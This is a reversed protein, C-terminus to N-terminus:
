TLKSFAMQQALNLPTVSCPCAAQQLPAWVGEEQRNRETEMNVKFCARQNRGAGATLALLAVTAPLLPIPLAPATCDAHGRSDAHPFMRVDMLKAM